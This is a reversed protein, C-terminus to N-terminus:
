ELTKEILRRAAIVDEGKVSLEVQGFLNHASSMKNLLLCPIENSVLMQRLLEAHTADTTTYLLVWQSM